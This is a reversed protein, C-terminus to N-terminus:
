VAEPCAGPVGDVIFPLVALVAFLVFFIWPLASEAVTLRVYREKLSEKEIAFFQYALQAELGKLAAFKGSNLQRYSRIVVLWNLSLLVGLIGTLLMVIDSPLGAVGFRISIALVAVMGALVSVYLRNAGERRQSVRDALEAHLKYLEHIEDGSPEHRQRPPAHGGEHALLAERFTERAEDDIHYDALHLKMDDRIESWCTRYYTSLRKNLLM